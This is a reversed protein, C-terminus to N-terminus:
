KKLDWLVDEAPEAKDEARFYRIVPQLRDGFASERLHNSWVRMTVERIILGIVFIALAAATLCIVVLGAILCIVAVRELGAYWGRSVSYLGGMFLAYSGIWLAIDGFGFDKSDRRFFDVAGFFSLWSFATLEIWRLWDNGRLFSPWNEAEDFLISEPASDLHPRVILTVVLLLVVTALTAFLGNTRRYATAEQKTLM